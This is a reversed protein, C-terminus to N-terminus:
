SPLRRLYGWCNGPLASIVLIMDSSFEVFLLTLIYLFSPEPWQISIMSLM